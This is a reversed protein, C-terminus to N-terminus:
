VGFRGFNAGIARNCHECSIVAMTGNGYLLWNVNKLEGKCHPCFPYKIKEPKEKPNKSM